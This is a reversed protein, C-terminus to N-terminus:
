SGASSPGRPSAARTSAAGTTPSRSSSTRDSHRAAITITGTAPKGAAERTAPDELGHDLANRVLHAIPDGLADVVTRDLETDQGVLRLEVKKELRAALDRVM